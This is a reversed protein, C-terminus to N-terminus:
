APSRTLHSLEYRNRVVEADQGLTELLRNLANEGAALEEIRRDVGLQSLAIRALGEPADTFVGLRNGAAALARVAASVEADPRLYVPARDEAFRSLSGRWDGVGGAAWRDLEVAAAARDEPLAGPDLPAISRYRRAADELWDCWLPRTDGLVGDLEIALARMPGTRRRVGSTDGHSPARLDRDRSRRRRHRRRDAVRAPRRRFASPDRGHRRLRARLLAGAARPRACTPPARRPDRVRDHARGQAPDHGVHGAGHQPEPDVLLHLHGRGLHDRAALSFAGSPGAHPWSLTSRVTRPLPVQHFYPVTGGSHPPNGSRRLGSAEPGPLHRLPSGRTLLGEAGGCVGSGRASPPNTNRRSMMRAATARSAVARAAGASAARTLTRISPLVVVIKPVVWGVSVTDSAFASPASSAALM